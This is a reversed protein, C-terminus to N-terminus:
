YVVSDIRRTGEASCIGIWGVISSEIIREGLSCGFTICRSRFVNKRAADASAAGASRDALSPEQADDKTPQVM